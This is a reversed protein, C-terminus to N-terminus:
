VKYFGKAPMLADLTQGRLRNNSRDFQLSHVAECYLDPRDGWCKAFAQCINMAPNWCISTCVSNKKEEQDEFVYYCM